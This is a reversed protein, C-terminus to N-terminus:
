STKNVSWFVLIIVLWMVIGCMIATITFIWAKKKYTISKDYDQQKYCKYAKVAYYMGFIALPPCCGFFAIVSAKAVNWTWYAGPHHVTQRRQTPTYTGSYPDSSTGPMPEAGNIGVPGATVTCFPDRKEIDTVETM